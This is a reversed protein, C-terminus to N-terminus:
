AYTCSKEKCTACHPHTHAFIEPCLAHLEKQIARALALHEPLARRCLRKPLYEFWARFNGTVLLHYCIAKPLAYSADEKRVGEKVLAEYFSMTSGNLRDIQRIGTPHLGEMATGRSSQVTFSLHRHRTLQLLVSLSCTVKFTATCHELVSLHGAEIIHRIVADSAEKQYCQSAALKLIGMPNPTYTILSVDPM